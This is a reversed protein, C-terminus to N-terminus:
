YTDRATVFMNTEIDLFKVTMEEEDSLYLGDDHRYTELKLESWDHNNCTDVVVGTREICAYIFTGYNCTFPMTYNINEGKHLDIIDQIKDLRSVYDGPKKHYKSESDDWEEMEARYVAFMANVANWSNDCEIVFSSSSSNSVFGHRVKM